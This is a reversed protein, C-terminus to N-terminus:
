SGWIDLGVAIHDDQHSEDRPSRTPASAANVFINFCIMDLGVLALRRHNRIKTAVSRSKEQTVAHALMHQLTAGGPHRSAWWRRTHTRQSEEEGPIVNVSVKARPEHNRGIIFHRTGQSDKDM